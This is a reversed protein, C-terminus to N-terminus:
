NEEKRSFTLYYSSPDEGLAVLIQHIEEYMANSSRNLQIFINSHSPSYNVPIDNEDDTVYIANNVNDNRYMKKKALDILEETKISYLYDIVSILVYAYSNADYSKNDIAISSPKTNTLDERTPSSFDIIDEVWTTTKEKPPIYASSPKDLALITSIYYKAIELSRKQLADYTNVDDDLVRNNKEANESRPKLSLNGPVHLVRKKFVEYDMGDKIDPSIFDHGEKLSLKGGIVGYKLRKDNPLPTKPMLHDITYNKGCENFRALAGDWYVNSEGYSTSVLSLLSYGFAKESEWCDMVSLRKILSDADIQLRALANAFLYLVEDKNIPTDKGREIIRTMINQFTSTIDRSGRNSITLFAVMEAISSVIISEADKKDLMDKEKEIFARFILPRPYEYSYELFYAKFFFRFRQTALYKIAKNEDFLALYYDIKNQLDLLFAKYAVGTDKTNFMTQLKATIKNFSDLNIASKSYDVYARLYTTFYNALGDETRVILDGWIKLYEDAEEKPICSFIRTKILDIEDLKKGKSNISEFIEFATGGELDSSAAYFVCYVNNFLHNIYLGLDNRNNDFRLSFYDYAIKFNNYVRSEIASLKNNPYIIQLDPECYERDGNPLITYPSYAYNLISDFINREIPGPEVVRDNKNFSEGDGRWLSDKLNKVCIMASMALDVNDNYMNILKYKQSLCYLACNILTLSILRQQGDVVDYIIEKNPDYVKSVIFNGIYLDSINANALHKLHSKTIDELLSRIQKDGWSYPRQYVPIQYQRKAMLLYISYDQPKMRALDENSNGM